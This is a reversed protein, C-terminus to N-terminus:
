LPLSILVTLSVTFPFLMSSLRTLGDSRTVCASLFANGTVNNDSDGWGVDNIIVM